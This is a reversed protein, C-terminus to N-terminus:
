VRRQLSLQERKGPQKTANILELPDTVRARILQPFSRPREDFFEVTFGVPLIKSSLSACVYSLLLTRTRSLQNERALIFALWDSGAVDLLGISVPARKSVIDALLM